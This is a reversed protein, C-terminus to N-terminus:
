SLEEEKKCLAKQRAFSLEELKKNRLTQTYRAEGTV